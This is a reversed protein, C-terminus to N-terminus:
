AMVLIYAIKTIESPEVSMAGIRLWAYAGNVKRILPLPNDGGRMAGVVTYLVLVLSGILFVWAWRGIVQYNIAQFLAMLGVGIGLFMLQKLADDPADAAISIIGMACLVGVAALVPWNTAIALQQWLRNMGLQYGLRSHAPALAM